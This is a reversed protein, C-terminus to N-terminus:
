VEECELIEKERKERFAKWEPHASLEQSEDSIWPSYDKIPTPYKPMGERFNRFEVEKFVRRMRVRLEAIPVDSCERAEKLIREVKETSTM